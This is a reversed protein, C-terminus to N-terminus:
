KEDEFAALPSYSLTPPSTSDARALLVSPYILTSVQPGRLVNQFSTKSELSWRPNSNQQLTLSEPVPLLLSPALMGNSTPFCAPSKTTM